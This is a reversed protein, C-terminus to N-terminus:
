PHRLDGGKPCEEKVEPRDNAISRVQEVLSEGAAVASEHRFEHGRLRLLHQVQERRLQTFAFDRPGRDRLAVPSEATSTTGGAILPAPPSQSGRQGRWWPELRYIGLSDLSRGGVPVGEM